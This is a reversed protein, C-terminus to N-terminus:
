VFELKPWVISTPFGSSKPIDRLAKRYEMVLTLNRPTIPYDQMLYFDTDALKKDRLFRAQVAMSEGSPVPKEVVEYYEGKDEIVYGNENAWESTAQYDDYPPTDVKYIKKGFM